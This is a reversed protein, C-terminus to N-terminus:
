QVTPDNSGIVIYVEVGDLSVGSSPTYSASDPTGVQIEADSFYGVLDNGMGEESVYIVTKTNAGTTYNGTVVSAFGAGSLKNAWRKALGSVSTSNLVIIKKDISSIEEAETTPEETTVEETTAETTVEETTATETTKKEEKGTNVRVIFFVAFGVIMIGLLVVFSRLFAEGFIKLMTKKDM